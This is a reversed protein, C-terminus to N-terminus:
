VSSNGAPLAPRIRYQTELEESHDFVFGRYILQKTVNDINRTPVTSRVPTRSKLDSARNVRMALRSRAARLAVRTATHRHGASVVTLELRLPVRLRRALFSKGHLYVENRCDKPRLCISTLLIRLRCKGIDVDRYSSPFFLKRVGFCRTGASTCVIGMRQM